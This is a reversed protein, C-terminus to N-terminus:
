GDAGHERIYNILAATNMAQEESRSIKYDEPINAIVEIPGSRGRIGRDGGGAWTVDRLRVRNEHAWALMDRHQGVFLYHLDPTVM